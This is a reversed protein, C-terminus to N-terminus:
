AANAQRFAASSLASDSPAAAEVETPVPATAIPQESRVAAPLVGMAGEARLGRQSAPCLGALNSVGHIAFISRDLGPEALARHTPIRDTTV